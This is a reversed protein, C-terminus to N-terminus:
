NSRVIPRKFFCAVEWLMQQPGAYATGQAMYNVMEWGHLGLRDAEEKMMTMARELYRDSTVSWDYEWQPPYWKGDSALWYGPGPSADTM